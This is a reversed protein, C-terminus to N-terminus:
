AQPDHDEGGLSLGGLLLGLVLGVAVAPRLLLGADVWGRWRGLCCSGSGRLLPAGHLTRRLARCAPCGDARNGSVCALACGNARRGTGHLPSPILLLGVSRGLLLRLLLRLCGALRLLVLEVLPEAGAHLPLAVRRLSRADPLCAAERRHLPWRPAPRGGPSRPDLRRRRSRRLTILIRRAAASSRASARARGTAAVSLVSTTTSTFSSLNVPSIM